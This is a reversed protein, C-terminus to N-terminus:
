VIIPFKLKPHTWKKKMLLMLIFMKKWSTKYKDRIVEKQDIELIM